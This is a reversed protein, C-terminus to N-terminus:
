HLINEIGALAVLPIVQQQQELAKQLSRVLVSDSQDPLDEISWDHPLEITRWNQDDFNQQEGGSVDGKFFKWGNDFLTQTRQANISNVLIVLLFFNTLKKM